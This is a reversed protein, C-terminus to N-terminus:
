AKQWLLEKKRLKEAKLRALLARRRYEIATIVYQRRSEASAIRFALENDSMPTM